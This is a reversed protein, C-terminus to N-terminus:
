LRASISLRFNLPMGETYYGNGGFIDGAQIYRKNTINDLFLRSTIRGKSYAVSGDFKTYDPIYVDVTTTAKKVISTQGLTVSFGPFVDAPFAYRVWTNIVERPSSAFKQGVKIPNTDKTIKVDTYAYNASVSFSQSISGIIDVEIGKSRVQGIQKSFKADDPDTTVMNNRSINFGTVSTSLRGNAWNRKIGIEKDDGRVPKFLNGQKDQGGTPVFSQDYLFFAATNKDILYTLGARPTFAKQTLPVEKPKFITTSIRDNHTYRGGLTVIFKTGISITNYLYAAYWKNTSRFGNFPDQESELDARNLGYKLNNRDLLFTKLGYTQYSSDRTFFYEGGAMLHHTINKGTNFKGNLFLQTSMVKNINYNRYSMRHAIGNKDFGVANYGTEEALFSWADSPVESYSSQSTIRWNDNIEHKFVFRANQSKSTSTPLGPDAQYNARRDDTLLQDVPFVKTFTSGGVGNQDNLIYEAMISTRKSFNYQIVPAIVVKNSNMQRVSYQQYNYAANFRYSIGKEQIPTGLDISGRYFNYSGVTVSTNLIPAVGPTKTVVNIRGGAEGASGLFGAPGKIFEISEIVAEDDQSRGFSGSPLGNRFIGNQAFGRLYLNSAGDFINNNLGFYVGSANRAADKLVFAGQEKLLTSSVSIINQPISLLPLDLKLTNSLSDNKIKRLRETVIVEQLTKSNKVSDMKVPNTPTQAFAQISLAIASFLILYKKKM